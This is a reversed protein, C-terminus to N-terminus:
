KVLISVTLFDNINHQDYKIVLETDDYIGNIDTQKEFDWM